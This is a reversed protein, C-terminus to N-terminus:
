TQEAYSRGPLTAPYVVGGALALFRHIFRLPLRKDCCRLSHASARITRVATKGDSRGYSRGVTAYERTAVDLVRRVSKRNARLAIRNEMGDGRARAVDGGDRDVRSRGCERRWAARAPLYQELERRIGFHQANAVPGFLAAEGDR